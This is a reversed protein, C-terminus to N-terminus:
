SGMELFVQGSWLGPGIARLQARVVRAGSSQKLGHLWGTLDAAKISPLDVRLGRPEDHLSGGLAAVSEALAARGLGPEPLPESRLARAQVQLHHLALRQEELAKTRAPAERWLQWAPRLLGQWIVALGVLLLMLVLLARERGRRQRWFGRLIAFLAEGIMPDPRESVM